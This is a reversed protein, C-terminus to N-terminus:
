RERERRLRDLHALLDPDLPDLSRGAIAEAKPWLDSLTEAIETRGTPGRVIMATGEWDDVAIRCHSLVRNLVAVRRHRALRRSTGAGDGRDAWHEVGMMGCLACM